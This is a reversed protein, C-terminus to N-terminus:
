GRWAKWIGTAAAEKGGGFYRMFHDEYTERSSDTEVMARLDEGRGRLKDGKRMCQLYAALGGM